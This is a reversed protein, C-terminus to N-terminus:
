AGLRRFIHIMRNRNNTSRVLGILAEIKFIEGSYMPYVTDLWVVHAGPPLRQLALMVKGRQIMPTGYRKADEASYPPDALVLDTSNSLCWSSPTPM